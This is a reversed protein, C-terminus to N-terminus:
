RKDRLQRQREVQVLVVKTKRRQWDLLCTAIKNADYAESPLFISLLRCYRCCNRWCRCLRYSCSKVKFENIGTYNRWKLALRQRRMVVGVSAGYFSLAIPHKINQWNISSCLSFPLPTFLFSRVYPLYRLQQSSFSAVWVLFLEGAHSM